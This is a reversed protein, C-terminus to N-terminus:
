HGQAQQVLQTASTPGNVFTDTHMSVFQRFELSAQLGTKLGKKTALADVKEQQADSLAPPSPLSTGAIATPTYTGSPRRCERRRIWLKRGVLIQGPVYSWFFASLLVGIQTNSLRLQDKILPAATALNGRDVYNIFVVVTLLPYAGRAGPPGSV